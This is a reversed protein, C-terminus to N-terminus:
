SNHGASRWFCPLCPCAFTASLLLSPLVSFLLTYSYTHLQLPDAMVENFRSSSDNQPWRTFVGAFVCVCVCVCAWCLGVILLRMRVRVYAYVSVCVCTRGGRLFFFLPRQLMNLQPSMPERATRLLVLPWILLAAWVAWTAWAVLPM